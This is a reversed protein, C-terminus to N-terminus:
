QCSGGQFDGFISVLDKYKDFRPINNTVYDFAVKKAYDPSAYAIMRAVNSKAESVTTLAGQISARIKEDPLIDSIKQIFKAPQQNIMDKALAVLDDPNMAKMIRLATEKTDMYTKIRRNVEREGLERIEEEKEGAATLLERKKELPWKEIQYYAQRLDEPDLQDMLKKAEEPTFQEVAKEALQAACSEDFRCDRAVSNFIKRAEEDNINKAIEAYAANLAEGKLNTLLRDLSASAIARRILSWEDELGLFNFISEYNGFVIDKLILWDKIGLQDELQSLVSPVEVMRITADGYNGAADVYAFAFYYGFGNLASTIIDLGSMKKYQFIPDVCKDVSFSVMDGSIQPKTYRISKDMYSGDPNKFLM